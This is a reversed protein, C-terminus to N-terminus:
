KLKTTLLEAISSSVQVHQTYIYILHHNFNNKSNCLSQNLVACILKCSSNQTSSCRYFAWRFVHVLFKRRISRLEM